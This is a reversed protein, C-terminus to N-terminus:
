QAPQADVWEAIVDGHCPVNIGPGARGKCFCGLKKGRLALVRARFVADKEVRELFYEKFRAITAGRAEERGLWFPNGFYGDEGRGARGIYVDYADLRINVVTTLGSRM